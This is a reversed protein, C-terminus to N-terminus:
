GAFSKRIARAHEPIVLTKLASELKPFKTTDIERPSPIRVLGEPVDKVFSTAKNKQRLLVQRAPDVFIKNQELKQRINYRRVLNPDNFSDLIVINLRRLAKYTYEGRTILDLLDNLKVDDFKLNHFANYVSSKYYDLAYVISDSFVKNDRVISPNSVTPEKVLSLSGIKEALEYISSTLKAEMSALTNERTLDKQFIPSRKQGSDWDIDFQAAKEQFASNIELNVNVGNAIMDNHINVLRRKSRGMIKKDSESVIIKDFVEVAVKTFLRDLTFGFLRNIHFDNLPNDLVNKHKSIFARKYNEVKLDKYQLTHTIEALPDPLVETNLDINFNRSRSVFATWIKYDLPISNLRMGNILELLQSKTRAIKFAYLITNKFERDLKSGNINDIELYPIPELRYDNYESIIRKKFDESNQTRHQEELIAFILIVLLM